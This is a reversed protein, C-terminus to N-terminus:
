EMWLAAIHALIVPIFVLGVIVVIVVFTGRADGGEKRSERDSLM